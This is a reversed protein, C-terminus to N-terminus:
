SWVLQFMTMNDEHRIFLRPCTHRIVYQWTKDVGPVGWQSECWAIVQDVDGCKIFEVDYVDYIRSVLFAHDAIQLDQVSKGTLKCWEEVDALWKATQTSM